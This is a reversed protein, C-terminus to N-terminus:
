IYRGDWLPTVDFGRHHRIHDGQNAFVRLNALQNDFRNHNEHHVIQDGQLAFYQNVVSRAIRSSNGTESMWHWKPKGGSIFASYCDMNCFQNLQKRIRAKTRYIQEGCTSCSVPIQTKKTDVGAQKLIKYIGQRTIGYKEALIIMPTLQNQYAEIIYVKQKTTLRARKRMIEGGILNVITLMTDRYNDLYFIFLIYKIRGKTGVACALPILALCALLVPTPPAFAGNNFM